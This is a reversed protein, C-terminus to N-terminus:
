FIRGGVVVLEEVVILILRFLDFLFLYFCSIYVSVMDMWGFRKIISVFKWFGFVNYFESWWDKLFVLLLLFNLRFFWNFSIIKKFFSFM